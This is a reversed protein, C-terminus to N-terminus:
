LDTYLSSVNLRLQTWMEKLEIGKIDAIKQAVDNIYEPLCTKGRHPVPSLFPLDTEVLLKNQPIYEIADRLSEGNAFTAIGGIGFFGDYELVKRAIDRDGTFCHVDFRSHMEPYQDLISFLDDFADRCHIVIPLDNDLALKIQSEFLKWQKKKISTDQTYYYDLGCEGVGIVKSRWDPNNLLQAVVEGQEKLYTRINFDKDVIEPHSGILVKIIDKSHFLKYNFVFNDTSVTPQIFLAHNAVLEDLKQYISDLDGTQSLVEFDMNRQPILELKELLLDLHGHTEHFVLDM